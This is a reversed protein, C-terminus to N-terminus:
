QTAQLNWLTIPMTSHWLATNYPNEKVPWNKWYTTNMPMRHFWQVLPVEPLERYWIEFAKHFLDFTKKDGEPTRSFEEVAADFEPNGWRPRNPGCDTGTPKVWKSQYMAMTDYPDKTSGGHGFFHLKARGDSKGAWVDPPTVHNSYFGGKRLQEATIPAIDGFLPVAAWIDLDPRKGDKTWFGEGDKTFGIEKMLDESRKLDVVLPDYQQLVDKITDIYKLLGPYYPYPGNTTQGAGDWGVDVLQQQDVVLAIAWRFKPDNYPAETCNFYMSIPWWDVYGYPKERGTHTIVHPAQDLITKIVRPRLDLPEDIENNIIQQAAKQDDTFGLHLVREIQPMKMFGTKAAWWDYRLDFKHFSPALEVCQYAGTVVPLGKVVDFDPYQRWDAQDKYIHEPVLIVQRDFRTTCLTFHFRYNPENLVFKVTYDDAVVAEKVATKVDSSNELDPAKDRLTNYVFAV